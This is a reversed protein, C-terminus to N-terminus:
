APRGCSRRMPVHGIGDEEYDAGDRAFGFRRYWDFLRLQADLVVDRGPAFQEALTLARDMLRAAVGGSRAAVATAVRGIRATGDPDILLRLTSIPEGDREAWVLRAQPEVDRGDLESYACAQEVVFVDVRLALLRYLTTPDIEAVPADCVVDASPV